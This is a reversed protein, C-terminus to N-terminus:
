GSGGAQAAEIEEIADPENAADHLRSSTGTGSLVFWFGVCAAAGVAACCGWLVAGGTHALLLGGGIPGIFSAAAFSLEFLGQYRGRLHDPALDAVVASASPTYIMEGLTWVGVSVAYVVATSGAFAVLGFGCGFLLASTALLRGKRWNATLRSVPIQLLVILFGNVSIVFGFDRPSLGHRSMAVPLTTSGQFYLLWVMFAFVILWLFRTDKLIQRIGARPSRTRAEGYTPGAPRTEKLKIVTIIACAMTTAADGAFLWIYGLGVVFGALITSLGFGLNTAWFNVMFARHRDQPQVLDTIMASTAPRWAATTVGLLLTLVAIVPIPTVVGLAATIGASALQTGILTARRGVRDTLYGGLLSGATSGLGFCAVVLGATAPSCGRTLTLYLTLFPLVFTGLRNVLTSSWLWWFGSPFAAANGWALLQYRRRM